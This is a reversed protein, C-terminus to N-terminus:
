GLPRLVARCARLARDAAARLGAVTPGQALVERAYAPLVAYPNGAVIARLGEPTGGQAGLGPVLVPGNIRTLDHGAPDVTAGIVAGVSGLPTM